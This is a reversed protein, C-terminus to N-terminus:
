RAGKVMAGNRYGNLLEIIRPETVEGMITDWDITGIQDNEYIMRLLYKVVPVYRPSSPKSAALLGASWMSIPRKLMKDETGWVLKITSLSGNACATSFLLDWNDVWYKDNTDITDLLFQIIHANKPSGWVISTRMPENLNGNIQTDSADVLSMMRKVIDLNTTGCAATLAPYYDIKHQESISNHTDNNVKVCTDIKKLIYDIISVRNMECANKLGKGWYLIDFEVDQLNTLLQVMYEVVPMHGAKCGTILADYLIKIYQKDHEDVMRLIFELLHLNNQNASAVLLAGWDIVARDGIRDIIGLIHEITELQGNNRCAAMLGWYLWRAYFRDERPMFESIFDIVPLNGTGCASSFCINWKITRFEGKERLIELMLEIVPLHKGRIASYLVSKWEVRVREELKMTSIYKLLFNIADIHGERCCMRLCASVNIDAVEYQELGELMYKMVHVHGGKSAWVLGSRYITVHVKESCGYKEIISLMFHVVVLHGHHCAAYMARALNSLYLKDIPLFSSCWKVVDLHGGQCARELGWSWKIPANKDTTNIYKIMYDIALMDGGKCALSFMESWAMHLQTLKLKPPKIVYRSTVDRGYMKIMIKHRRVNWQQITTLILEISPIHAHQCAAWIGCRVAVYQANLEKEDDLKLKEIRQLQCTIAKLNGSTFIDKVEEKSPAISIVINSGTDM